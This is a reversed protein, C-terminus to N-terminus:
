TFDHIFDERQVASRSPQAHGGPPQFSFGVGASDWMQAGPIPVQKFDRGSGFGKGLANACDLRFHGM